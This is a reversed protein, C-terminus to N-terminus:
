KMTLISPECVFLTYKELFQIDVKNLKNLYRPNLTAIQIKGCSSCHHKKSLECRLKNMIIAIIKTKTQAYKTFVSALVHTYSYRM